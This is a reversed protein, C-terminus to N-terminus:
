RTAIAPTAMNGARDVAWVIVQPGRRVVFPGSYPLLERPRGANVVTWMGAVGSVSDTARLTIRVKGVGAPVVTPYVRPADQDKAKPGSVTSTPTIARGNVCLRVNAVPQGTAFALSITAGKLSRPVFWSAVDDPLFEGVPGQFHDRSFTFQEPFEDTGRLLVVYSDNARQDIVLEQMRGFIPPDSLTTNENVGPIDFLRGQTDTVHGVAGIANFRYGHGPDVHSAVPSPCADRASGQAGVAAAVALMLVALIAAARV